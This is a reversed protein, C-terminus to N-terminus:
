PMRPEPRRITRGQRRQHSRQTSALRLDMVRVLPHLVGRGSVQKRRATGACRSTSAWPPGALASRNRAWPGVGSPGTFAVASKVRPSPVRWFHENIQQLIGGGVALRDAAIGRDSSSPVTGQSRKEFCRSFHELPPKFIASLIMYRNSSSIVHHGPTISHLGHTSHLCQSRGDLGTQGFDL